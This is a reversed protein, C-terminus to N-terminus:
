GGENAETDDKWDSPYVTEVIKHRAASGKSIRLPADGYVRFLRLKIKYPESGFGKTEHYYLRGNEIYSFDIRWGVAARTLKVQVQFRLDSIEGNMQRAALWEGVSRELQSDFRRGALLPLCSEVRKAGYSQARSTKRRIGTRRLGKARNLTGSM